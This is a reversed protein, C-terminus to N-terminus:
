KAGKFYLYGFWVAFIVHLLFPIYSLVSAFGITLGYVFVLSAIASHVFEGLIITRRAESPPNDKVLWNIVALSILAGGFLRVMFEGWVDLSINFLSMAFGPVIVFPLGFLIWAIAALTFALKVKM